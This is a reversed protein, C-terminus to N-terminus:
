RAYIILVDDDLNVLIYKHEISTTHAEVDLEIRNFDIFTVRWVGKTGLRVTNPFDLEVSSM